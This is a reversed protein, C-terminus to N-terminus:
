YLDDLIAFVDDNVWKVEPLDFTKPPPSPPSTWTFRGLAQLTSASAVNRCVTTHFERKDGKLKLRDIFQKVDTSSFSKDFSSLIKGAKNKANENTNCSSKYSLLMSRIEEKLTEFVDDSIDSKSEVYELLKVVSWNCILLLHMDFDITYQFVAYPLIALSVCAWPSWRYVTELVDLALRLPQVNTPICVGDLAPRLPWVGTPIHM